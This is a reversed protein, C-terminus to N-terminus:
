PIRRRKMQALTREENSRIQLASTWRLDNADQRLAANFGLMMKTLLEIAHRILSLTRIHARRHHALNLAGLGRLRPVSLPPLASLAGLFASLRAALLLGPADPTWAIKTHAAEATM